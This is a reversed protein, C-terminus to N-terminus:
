VFALRRVEWPTRFSRFPHGSEIPVPTRFGESDADTLGVRSDARNQLLTPVENEIGLRHLARAFDLEVEATDMKSGNGLCNEIEWYVM